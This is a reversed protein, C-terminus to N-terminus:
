KTFTVVHVKRETFIGAAPTWASKHTSTDDVRWGQALMQNIGKEMTLDGPYREVYREVRVQKPPPPLEQM